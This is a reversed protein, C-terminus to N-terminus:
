LAFPAPQKSHEEFLDMLGPLTVGIAKAAKRASVQGGQVGCFVLDVFSPSFRKPPDSKPLGSTQDKLRDMQVESIMKANLLRYALAAPSVRLKDAVTRLHGLDEVRDGIMSRLSSTPMLLGAAFNDALKEIKWIKGRGSIRGELRPPRMKDWTLAHFLEHALDFNRRVEPENRNILIVGLDPLHCTAGSVSGRPSHISEVFLVPVDLESEIREILRKAPVAGLELTAAVDEGVALAEEFSSNECFRLNVGFPKKEHANRQRLFRLLGVWAGAREEFSSLDEDPLANSARWSFQAEGAVVFPDIFYDMDRGLLESLRVLEDPRVSRDGKEIASITQRDAIGMARSLQEQSMSVADRAARIRHGLSRSTVAAASDTMVSLTIKCKEKQM